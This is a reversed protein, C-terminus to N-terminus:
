QRPSGRLVREDERSTVEGRIVRRRKPAAFMWPGAHRLLLRYLFLGLLCPLAVPVLWATM